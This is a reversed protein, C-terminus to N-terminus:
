LSAPGQESFLALRAEAAEAARESLSHMRQEGEPLISAVMLVAHEAATLAALTAPSAQDTPRVDPRLGESVLLRIAAGLGLGHETAFTAIEAKLELPLGIHLRHSTRM